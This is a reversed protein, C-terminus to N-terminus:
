WRGIKRETRDVQGNWRDVKREREIARNRKLEKVSLARGSADRQTKGNLIDTEKCIGLQEMYSAYEKHFSALDDRGVCEKACFSKQGDREVVPLFAFHIHDTTESKHIYASIVVDEGMGSKRGYRDVLFKYTAEFFETKKEEPLREPADVIWCCMRVADKRLTRGDMIEEIKEKIYDTQKGRDPALNTHDDAIKTEDIDPNGYHGSKVSREYHACLHGIDKMDSFKRMNAMSKEGKWMGKGVPRFTARREWDGKDTYCTISQELTNGREVSPLM